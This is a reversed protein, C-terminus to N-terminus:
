VSYKARESVRVALALSRHYLYTFVFLIITNLAQFSM